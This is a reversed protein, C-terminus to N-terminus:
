LHKEIGHAKLGWIFLSEIRNNALSLRKVFIAFLAKFFQYGLVPWQDLYANLQGGDIEILVGDTLAMVSAMRVYSGHLCVEGFIDGAELDSIGQQINCRNELAVQVNVRLRGQEIFFLANGEEGEHVITENSHFHRRRWAINETFDPQAILNEIQTKM